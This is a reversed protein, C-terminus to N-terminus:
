ILLQKTSALESSCDCADLSIVKPSCEPGPTIPGQKRAHDVSPSAPDRCRSLACVCRLSLIKVEWTGAGSPFSQSERDSRVGRISSGRNGPLHASGRITRNSRGRRSIIGLWRNMSRRRGWLGCSSALIDNRATTTRQAGGQPVSDQRCVLPLGVGVVFTETPKAQRLASGVGHYRSRSWKLLLRTWTEVKATLVAV